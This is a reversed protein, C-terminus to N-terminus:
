EELSDEPMRLIEAAEEAKDATVQLKIRCFPLGTYAGGVLSGGVVVSEIGNSDLRMKAISADLEDPFEAITVLKDSM